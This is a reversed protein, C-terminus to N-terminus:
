TLCADHRNSTDNNNNNSEDIWRSYRTIPRWSQSFFSTLFNFFIKELVVFKGQLFIHRSTRVGEQEDTIEWLAFRDIMTSSTATRTAYVRDKSNRRKSQLQHLSTDQHFEREISNVQNRFLFRKQCDINKERERRKLVRRTNKEESM